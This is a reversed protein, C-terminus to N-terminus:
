ALFFEISIFKGIKEGYIMSKRRGGDVEDDGAEKRFLSKATAALGFVFDSLSEM